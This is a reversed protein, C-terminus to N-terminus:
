HLKIFGKACYGQKEEGEDKQNDKKITNWLLYLM